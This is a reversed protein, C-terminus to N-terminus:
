EHGQAEVHSLHKEPQIMDIHHPRCYEHPNDRRQVSNGINERRNWSTKPNLRHFDFSDLFFPSAHNTIVSWRWPCFIPCSNLHLSLFPPLLWSIDPARLMWSTRQFQKSKYVTVKGHFYSKLLAKATRLYSVLSLKSSDPRNIAWSSVRHIAKRTTWEATSDAKMAQAPCFLETSVCRRLPRPTLQHCQLPQLLWRAWPLIISFFHDNMFVSGHPLCFGKQRRSWRKHNM